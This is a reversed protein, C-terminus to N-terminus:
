GNFLAKMQDVTMETRYVKRTVTGSPPRMFILTGAPMDKAAETPEATEIWDTNIAIIRNYARKDEAYQYIVKVSILSM